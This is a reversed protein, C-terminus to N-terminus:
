EIITVEEHAQFRIFRGCKECEVRLHMSGNAHTVVRRSVETEGCEYCPFGVISREMKRRERNRRRNLRSKRKKPKNRLVDKWM